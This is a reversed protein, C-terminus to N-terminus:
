RNVPQHYPKDWVIQVVRVAQELFAAECYCLYYEWMRIFRDDFGLKRVDSIHDFFQHRWEKLTRAYHESLDELSELRLNSTRGVSNQIASVSPLFGGPFIYQQIFDVSRRYSDYRDEPMVIAQIVFRGGPKLLRACHQFYTDLYKEGVAEVMEISVIKDYQGDLDRYDNNLLQVRDSIGAEIIRSRAKSFQADSITTTTLGCGFNRVAHLAFGGWGTGIELVEDTPRLDLKRCIRDLKAVSAQHLSSDSTEFWGSSYMMTPDLFLEFFENCLDYHAAIHRRSRQRTNSNIRFAVRNLVRSLVALGSSGAPVRALNRYLMRLLDTLDDTQWYNRLYSEALGLSGGAALQSFFRPDNVIWETQLETTGPSGCAIQREADVYHIQGDELKELWSLVIRRSVRQIWTLTNIGGTQQPTTTLGSSQTQSVAQISKTSSTM